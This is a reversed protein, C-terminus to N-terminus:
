GFFRPFSTVSSPTSFVISLSKEAWRLCGCASGMMDSVSGDCSVVGVMCRGVCFDVSCAKQLKGAGGTWGGEKGTDCIWVIFAGRQSSQSATNCCSSFQMSTSISASPAASLLMNVHSSQPLATQPVQATTDLLRCQKPQAVDALFGLFHHYVFQAHFLTPETCNPSKSQKANLSSVALTKKDSKRRRYGKKSRNPQEFPTLQHDPPQM